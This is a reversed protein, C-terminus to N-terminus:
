RELSLLLAQQMLFRKSWSLIDMFINVLSISFSINKHSKKKQWKTDSNGTTNNKKLKEKGFYILSSMLVQSPEGQKIVIIVM